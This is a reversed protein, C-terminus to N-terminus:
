EKDSPFKHGEANGYRLGLAMEELNLVEESVSDQEMRTRFLIQWLHAQYLVGILPAGYWSAFIQAVWLIKFIKFEQTSKVDFDSYYCDTGLPLKGMSSAILREIWNM